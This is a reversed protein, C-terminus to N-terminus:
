QDHALIQGVPDIHRSSRAQLEGALFGHWGSLAIVGALKAVMWPQALFGWGEGYEFIHIGIM